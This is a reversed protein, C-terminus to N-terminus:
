CTPRTVRQISAATVVVAAMAMGLVSQNMDVLWGALFLGVLPGLTCSGGSFAGKALYSSAVFASGLASISTLLVALPNLTSLTGSLSTFAWFALPILAIFAYKRLPTWGAGMGGSRPARRLQELSPIDPVQTQQYIPPRTAMGPLM